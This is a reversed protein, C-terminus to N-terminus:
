AYFADHERAADALVDVATFLAIEAIQAPPEPSRQAPTDVFPAQGPPQQRRPLADARGREASRLVAHLQGPARYVDRLRALQHRALVKLHEVADRQAVEVEDIEAADAHRGMRHRHGDLGEDEALIRPHRVLGRAHLPAM